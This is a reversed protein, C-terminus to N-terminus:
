PVYFPFIEGPGCFEYKHLIRGNADSKIESRNIKTCTNKASPYKRKTPGLLDALLEKTSKM